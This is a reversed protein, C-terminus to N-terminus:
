MSISAAKALREHKAHVFLDGYTFFLQGSLRDGSGRKLFDNIIRGIKGKHSDPRRLNMRLESVGKSSYHLILVTGDENVSAVLGVHSVRYRRKDTTGKFFVLDAKKPRRSSYLLNRKQLTWFLSQAVSRDGPQPELSFRYGLTRYVGVIYGSCDSRFGSGLTELDKKGLLSEACEVIRDREKADDTFTVTQRPVTACASVLFLLMIFPLFLRSTKRLNNM